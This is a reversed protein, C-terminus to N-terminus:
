RSLSLGNEERSFDKGFNERGNNDSMQMEM